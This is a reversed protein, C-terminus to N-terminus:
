LLEKLDCDNLFKEILRPFAFSDLGAISSKQDGRAFAKRTQVVCFRAHLCQHTLMHRYEGSVHRIVTGPTCLKRFLDTEFLEEPLLKKRSEILNFEYLGRWIDKQDRKRILVQGHRDALVV